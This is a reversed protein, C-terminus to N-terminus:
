HWVSWEGRDQDSTDKENVLV